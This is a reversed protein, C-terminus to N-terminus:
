SPKTRRVLGEEVIRQIAPFNRQAAAPVPRWDATGSRGVFWDFPRAGPGGPRGVVIRGVMGIAEFPACFYDYVGEETLTVEFQRGYEVLLGSDWPRATEPIRLPHNANAPHYASTTHASQHVMWRVTDGPALRVGIPDFWVDAGDADSRMAVEVTAAARVVAPAGLVALGLGGAGLFARRTLM